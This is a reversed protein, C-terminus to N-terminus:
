FIINSAKLARKCNQGDRFQNVLLNIKFRQEKFDDRGEVISELFNYLDAKNLLRMGPKFENANDLAFGRKKQYEDIDDETFGIPRDVLLYDYFVSSYDTILADTQRMLKYLDYGLETFEKDNLLQFNKLNATILKPIDQMPHLKVIMYIGKSRLFYDLEKFDDASLLPLIKDSETDNYGLKTSKRFTPLWIIIKSYDSFNYENEGYLLDTRPHGCIYVSNATCSFKKEVIPRFFESTAFVYTYFQNKETNSKKMATDFGKFSTGHWMQITIQEKSPVIPIRGFSYFVHTCTLYEFVGQINSVFRVNKVKLSLYDLYDNTSCIIEYDENLGIQIMYNYLYRTNDRFGLNSYLLIKKQKHHTVRNIISCVKFVSNILINKLVINKIM